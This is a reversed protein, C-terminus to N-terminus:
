LIQPEMPPPGAEPEGQPDDNWLMLSVFKIRPNPDGAPANPNRDPVVIRNLVQILPATVQAVPRDQQVEYLAHELWTFPVNGPGSRNGTLAERTANTNTSGFDHKWSVRILARAMRQRYGGRPSPEPSDRFHVEAPGATPSPRIM